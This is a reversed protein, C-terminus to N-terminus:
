EGEMDSGAGSRRCFNRASEPTHERRAASASMAWPSTHTLPAAAVGPCRTIGPSSLTVTLPLVTRAAAWGRSVNASCLGRPRTSWSSGVIGVGNEVQQRALQRLQAKEARAPEVLVALAEDDDRGVAIQGIAEHVRAVRHHLPVMHAELLAEGPRAEREQQATHDDLAFAEADLM